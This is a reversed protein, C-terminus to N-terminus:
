TKKQPDSSFLTEPFCTKVVIATDAHGRNERAIESNKKLIAEEKLLVEVPAESEESKVHM